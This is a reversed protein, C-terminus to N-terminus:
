MGSMFYIEGVIMTTPLAEDQGPALTPTPSIEESFEKSGCGAWFCLAVFLLIVSCRYLKRM